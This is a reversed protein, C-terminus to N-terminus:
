KNNRKEKWVRNSNNKQKNVGDKNGSNFFCFQWLGEDVDSKKKCVNRNSPKKIKIKRNRNSQKKEINTMVM